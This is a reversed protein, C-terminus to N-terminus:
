RAMVSMGFLALVAVIVAALAGIRVGRGVNAATWSMAECWSDSRLARKTLPVAALMLALMALLWWILQRGLAMAEGIGGYERALGANVAFLTALLLTGATLVAGLSQLARSLWTWQKQKTM